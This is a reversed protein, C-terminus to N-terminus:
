ATVESQADPTRTAVDLLRRWTSLVVVVPVLAAVVGAAAVLHLEEGRRSVLEALQLTVPRVTAETGGLVTGGVLLDSWAVVFPVAALAVVDGPARRAPRSRVDLLAVIPSTLAALVLWVLGLRVATVDVDAALRAVPLVVAVAPLLVLAVLATRRRRDDAGGRVEMGRGILLGAALALATAPVAVLLSDLVAPWMGGVDPDLAAQLSTPDLDPSTPWTWWGSSAVDEAPRAADLVLGVVPLLALVVVVWAAATRLGDRRDGTADRSRRRHRGRRGTGAGAHPGGRRGLVWWGVAGLALSIVVVLSALAAGRGPQSAVLSLDVARTAPVHTGFSGSTAVWVLDFSRAAVVAAVVAVLAGTPRLEVVLDHPSRRTPGGAGQDLRALLLATAPGALVWVLSTALVVTNVLPEQTLWAVPSLGVTTLVENVLGVQGRGDPRFAFTARWVVAVTALTSAAPVLLLSTLWARRRLPALLWTLFGAVVVTGLTVGVIWVAANVVTSTASGVLWSAGSLSRVLTWATPVVLLAAVLLTTGTGARAAPRDRM